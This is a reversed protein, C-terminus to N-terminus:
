AQALAQELAPIFADPALGPPNVPVLRGGALRLYFDPTGSSGIDRAMTAARRVLPDKEGRSAGAVAAAPDVGAEEAIRTIFADTVYGSNEPGQHRYFSDAFQFLRNERAAVAAAGAARISDPGIFAEIRLEYRLKGARVQDRVVTPMTNVAYDACFPCQLDAFELLTAKATPKGLFVGSQPLGDYASAAQAAANGTGSRSSAAKDGGGSSLVIAIVVVVAALALVVGLRLLRARRQDDAPTTM